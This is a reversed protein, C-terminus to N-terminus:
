RRERSEIQDLLHNTLKMSEQLNGVIMGGTLKNLYFGGASDDPAGSIKKICVNTYDLIKNLVKKPNHSMFANMENLAIEKEKEIEEKLKQRKGSLKLESLMDEDTILQLTNNAKEGLLNLTQVQDTNLKRIKLAIENIDGSKLVSDSFRKVDACLSKVQNLIEPDTINGIEKDLIEAQKQIAEVRGAIEDYEKEQKKVEEQLKSRENMLRFLEKKIEEADEKDDDIRIVESLYELVDPLFLPNDRDCIEKLNERVKPYKKYIFKAAEPKNKLYGYITRIDVDSDLLFSEDAWSIMAKLDQNEQKLRQYYTEDKAM